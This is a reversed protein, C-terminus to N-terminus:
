SACTALEIDQDCRRFLLLKGHEPFEPKAAYKYTALHRGIKDEPDECDIGLRYAGTIFNWDGNWNKPMFKAWATGNNPVVIEATFVSPLMVIAGEYEANVYASNDIARKGETASVMVKPPVRRLKGNVVNFRPPHTSPMFRFNGLVRTAGLRKMLQSPEAYRTDIRRETSNRAIRSAMQVGMEITFVPGEESMSVYGDSNPTTADSTILDAAVADLIDMTIESTPLTTITNSASTSPAGDGNFKVGDVWKQSFYMYDNQMALSWTRKSRKMLETEYAKLFSDVDHHFTLADQCIVPGRLQFQKPGYETEDFGAFVDTFANDCASSNADSGLTLKNGNLTIPIWPEEAYEPESNGITIITQTTGKGEPFKGRPVVNGWGDMYSPRRLLDQPLSETATKMWGFPSCASAVNQPDCGEPAEARYAATISAAAALCQAFLLNKSISKM